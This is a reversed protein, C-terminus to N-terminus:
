SLLSKYFHMFTTFEAISFPLTYIAPKVFSKTGKANDGVYFYCDYQTVTVIGKFTMNVFLTDFIANSHASKVIAHKLKLLEM